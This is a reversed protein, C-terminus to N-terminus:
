STSAALLDRLHTAPTRVAVAAALAATVPGPAPGLDLEWAPHGWANRADCAIRALPQVGRLSNTLFAERWAARAAMAPGEEHVPLGLEAAAQLVRHRVTGWVVGEGTGATWLALQQGPPAAAGPRPEAAAAAAAQEPPAAREAPGPPSGNSIAAAGAAPGAAAAGQDEAEEAVVYVSTVLGELLRGDQSCLLVEAAGEPRLTELRQRQHVWGSDEFGHPPEAAPPLVLTLMCDALAAHLDAYKDLCARMTPLLLAQLDHETLGGRAEAWEVHRAYFEGLTAHMQSISKILRQLHVGWDMLSGQRVLVTTYAGRPIHERLIEHLSQDDGLACPATSAYAMAAMRVPVRLDAIDIDHGGEVLGWEGIQHDEELRAAELAAEVGLWGRLAALGILVSKCSAALQEAAALQWKDLSLLYRRVATVDDPSVESGFISHTTRLAVGMEQQAWMVVPDYIQAQREALKGAREERCLVSDTPLYQLMSEVVAERPKPQDIATAALSMLPMTFPQIREAQQEWEAAVAMALAASPLVLPRRAPTKLLRQDLM